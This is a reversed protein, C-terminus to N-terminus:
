QSVALLCTLALAAWFLYRRIDGSSRFSVLGGVLLLGQTMTSFVLQVPKEVFRNALDCVFTVVGVGM